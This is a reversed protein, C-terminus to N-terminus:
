RKELRVNEWCYVTDKFGRRRFLSTTCEFGYWGRALGDKTAMWTGQMYPINRSSELYTMRMWMAGVTKLRGLMEESGRLFMKISQRGASRPCDCM